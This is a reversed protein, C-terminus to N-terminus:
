GPSPKSEREKRVNPSKSFSHSFYLAATHATVGGAKIRFEVNLISFESTLQWSHQTLHEQLICVIFSQPLLQSDPTEQPHAAPSTWPQLLCQTSLFSKEVSQGVPLFQV